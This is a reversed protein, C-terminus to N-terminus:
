PEKELNIKVNEYQNRTGEPFIGIAEGKFLYELAEREAQSADGFRDVCIAGTKKFFWGLNGDFYEKKAMWHTVRDTSCIVPFQDLVHLHNGCLIIPGEKPIYEKNLITPRYLIKFIPVGINRFVKYSNNM